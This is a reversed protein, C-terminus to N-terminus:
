NNTLVISEDAIINAMTVFSTDNELEGLKTPISKFEESDDGVTIIIGYEDNVINGLDDTLIQNITNYMEKTMIGDNVTTALPIPNSIDEIDSEINLIDSKINAIDQQIAPIITEHYQFIDLKEFLDLIANELWLEWKAKGLQSLVSKERNKKILRLPEM